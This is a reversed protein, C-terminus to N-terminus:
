YQQKVFHYISEEQKIFYIDSPLNKVDILNKGKQIEISMLKNGTLSYIEINSNKTSLITLNEISPNPYFHLSSQNQNQEIGITSQVHITGTFVGNSIETITFSDEAGNIIYYDMYYPATNVITPNINGVIISDQFITAIYDGAFAGYFKLTDGVSCNINTTTDYIVSHSVPNANTSSIICAFLIIFINKM